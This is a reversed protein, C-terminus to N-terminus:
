GNWYRETFWATFMGTPVCLLVILLLTLWLSDTFLSVLFGMVGGSVLVAITRKDM